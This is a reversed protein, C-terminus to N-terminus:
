MYNQGVFECQKAFPQKSTVLVFQKFTSQRLYQITIIHAKLLQPKYPWIILIKHLVNLYEVQLRKPTSTIFRHEELHEKM